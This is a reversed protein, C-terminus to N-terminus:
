NHCYNIPPKYSDSYPFVHKISFYGNHDMVDDKLEVAYHDEPAVPFAHGRIRTAKWFLFVDIIIQQWAM